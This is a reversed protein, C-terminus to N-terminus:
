LDLQGLVKYPAVPLCEVVKHWVRVVREHVARVRVLSCRQAELRQLLEHDVGPIVDRAQCPLIAEAGCEGVPGLQGNGVQREGEAARDSRQVQEQSCILKLKLILIQWRLPQNDLLGLLQRLLLGHRSPGGHGLRPLLLEGDDHLESRGRVHHAEEIQLLVRHALRELTVLKLVGQLSHLPVVYAQNEMRRAGRLLRLDDGDRVLAHRNPAEAVGSRILYASIVHEDVGHGHEVDSPEHLIQEHTNEALRLEDRQGPLVTHRHEILVHQLLGIGRAVRRNRRVM